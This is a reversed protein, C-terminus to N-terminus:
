DGGRFADALRRRQIKGTAARPISDVV